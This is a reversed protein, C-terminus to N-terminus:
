RGYEVESRLADICNRLDQKTVFRRAGINVTKLKETNILKYLSWQRIGLIQCADELSLLKMEELEKRVEPAESTNAQASLLMAPARITNRQHKPSDLGLKTGTSISTNTHFDNIEQTM